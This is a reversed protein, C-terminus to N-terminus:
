KLEIYLPLHRYYVELMLLNLCTVYHRGGSRGWSDKDPLEPDWSGRQPGGKEQTEVLMDRLATNWANWHEGQMHFMVQTGYYWYYVDRAEPRPLRQQLWSAGAQLASDTRDAGLYQRMLLGEATMSETVERTPHYRFRGPADADEVLNLWQRVGDYASPPIKLGAMEGSKMAMLQWGSVSTDSEFQPKYRWGGYTPHQSAFIYELSKQAAARVSNDRTMGYAECLAIAAIGHSYFRAFETEAAFLDGDDAQREILWKLGRGVEQQYDGSRHTHGAGLFALLALGTAAPDAEYTGHGTCKHDQCNPSHISWNGAAYQHAALWELGRRVAAESGESGGLARVAESRAEPARMSFGASIREAPIPSIGPLARKLMASVESASTMAPRSATVDSRRSRGSLGSLGPLTPTTRAIREAGAPGPASIGPLGSSRRAVTTGAGPERLTARGFDDAGGASSTQAQPGAMVLAGSQEAALDSDSLGIGAARRSSMAATSREGVIDGLGRTGSTRGGSVDEATRRGSIAPTLGTPGRASSPNGAPGNGAAMQSGPGSRTGSSSRDTPLDTSRRGVGTRSADPGGSELRNLGSGGGVAAVTVSEAQTGAGGDASRATRQSGTGASSQSGIADGMNPGVASGTSRTLRGGPLTTAGFDSRQFSPAGGGATMAPVAAQGRSGVSAASSANLNPSAVGGASAAAVSEASIDAASLDSGGSSESREIAAVDGANPVADPLEAARRTRSMAPASPQLDSSSAPSQDSPRESPLATASRRETEMQAAEPLLSQAAETAARRVAEAASNEAAASLARLDNLTLSALDATEPQADNRAEMSAAALTPTNRSDVSQNEQRQDQLSAEDRQMEPAEPQMERTAETQTVPREVPKPVDAEAQQMQRQLELEAERQLREQERERQQLEIQEPTSQHEPREPQANPVPETHQRELEQDPSEQLQVDTPREWEPIQTSQSEMGGYDPLLLEEAPREFSAFDAATVAPMDLLVKQLTLCLVAHLLLSFLVAWQLRKMIVGRITWAAALMGAGLMSALLLQGQLHDMGPVPVDDGPAFRLMMGLLALGASSGALLAAPLPRLGEGTEAHALEDESMRLLSKM